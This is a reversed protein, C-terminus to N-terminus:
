GRPSCRPGSSWRPSRPTTPRSAAPSRAPMRDLDAAEIESAGRSGELQEIRSALAALADNQADLRGQLDKRQKRSGTISRSAISRSSLTFSSPTSSTPAPRAPRTSSRASGSRSRRSSTTSASCTRTWADMKRLAEKKRAKYKSIGAAEDFIARRDEQSAQLFSEVRGQEIVSYADVGVGTDMFMERIDRLRAPAKNILYESNGNRFLRRTVSVTPMPEGEGGVPKLLGGDNDFIMTVEAHGSPRRASSGNFIVDMMESGRLSKASQEGLVWKMADVVNSKGCGNPGVICSAGDDFDFETRDAFSKFGSLVLKKLKMEADETVGGRSM